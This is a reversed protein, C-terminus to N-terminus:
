KKIVYDHDTTLQNKDSREKYLREAEAPRDIAKSMFGNDLHEVVNSSPGRPARAMPGYCTPCVPLIIAEEPMCVRRKDIKCTTCNYFFQPM